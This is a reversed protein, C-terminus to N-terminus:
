VGSIVVLSGRQDRRVIRILQRRQGAVRSNAFLSEAIADPFPHSRAQRFHAYFDFHATVIQAVGDFFGAKASLWADNGSPVIETIAAGSDFSGSNRLACVVRSDVLQIGQITAATTITTTSPTTIMSPPWPVGAAGVPAPM